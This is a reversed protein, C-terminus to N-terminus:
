QRDEYSIEKPNINMNTRSKQSLAADNTSDNGVNRFLRNGENELGMGFLLNRGMKEKECTKM